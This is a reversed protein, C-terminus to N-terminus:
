LLSQGDVEGALLCFAFLADHHLPGTSPFFERSVRAIRRNNVPVNCRLAAAKLVGFSACPLSPWWVDAGGRLAQLCLLLMILM